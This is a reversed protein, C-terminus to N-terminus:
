GAVSLLPLAIPAAGPDFGTAMPQHNRSNSIFNGLQVPIIRKRLTPDFVSSPNNGHTKVSSIHWAHSQDRRQNEERNQSRRRLGVVGPVVDIMTQLSEEGAFWTGGRDDNM